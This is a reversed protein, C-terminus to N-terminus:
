CKWPQPQAWTVQCACCRRCENLNIKALCSLNHSTPPPVIRKVRSLSASPAPVQPTQKDIVQPQQPAHVNAHM